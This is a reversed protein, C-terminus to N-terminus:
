APRYGSLLEVSVSARHDGGYPGIGKLLFLRGARPLHHVFIGPDRIGVYSDLDNFHFGLFGVTGLKGLGLPHNGAAPTKPALLIEIVYVIERIQETRGRSRCSGCDVRSVTWIVHLDALSSLRHRGYEVNRDGYGTRYLM